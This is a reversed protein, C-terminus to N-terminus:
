PLAAPRSSDKAVLDSFIGKMRDYSGKYFIFVPRPRGPRFAFMRQENEGPHNWLLTDSRGDKTDIILQLHPNDTEAVAGSGELALADCRLPAMRQLRTKLVATDVPLGSSM